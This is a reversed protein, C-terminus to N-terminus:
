PFGLPMFNTAATPNSDQVQLDYFRFCSANVQLSLLAVRLLSALWLLTFSFLDLDAAAVGLLQSGPYRLLDVSKGKNWASSLLSVVVPHRTMSGNLKEALMAVQSLM